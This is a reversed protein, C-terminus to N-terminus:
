FDTTPLHNRRLSLGAELASQILSKSYKLRRPYPKSIRISFPILNKNAKRVIQLAAFGILSNLGIASNKRWNKWRHPWNSATQAQLLLLGRREYSGWIDLYWTITAELLYFAFAMKSLLYKCKICHGLHDGCLTASTIDWTRLSVWKEQSKLILHSTTLWVQLLQYMRLSTTCQVTQWFSPLSSCTPPSSESLHPLPLRKRVNSKLSFVDSTVRRQQRRTPFCPSNDVVDCEAWYVGLAM